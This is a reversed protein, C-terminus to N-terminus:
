PPAPPDPLGKVTVTVPKTEKLGAKDTVTLTFAYSKKPTKSEQESLSVVGTAPDVVLPPEAGPETEVVISFAHGDCADPDAVTARYLGGELAAVDVVVSEESTLRPGHLAMVQRWAALRYHEVLGPRWPPRGSASAHQEFFVTFQGDGDRDLFREDPDRVCNSNADFFPESDAEAMPEGPGGEDGLLASRRARDFEVCRSFIKLAWRGPDWFLEDPHVALARPLPIMTWAILVAGALIAAAIGGILCSVVRSALGGMWVAQDPLWRGCVGRLALLLGILLLLFAVAPAYADPIEVDRLYVSMSMAGVLAGVFAAVCGLAVVTAVFLGQKWAFAIMVVLSALVLGNGVFATIISVDAFLPQLIVIM